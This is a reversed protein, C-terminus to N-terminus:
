CSDTPHGRRKSYLRSGKGTGSCESTPSLSLHSCLNVCFLSIHVSLLLVPFYPSPLPSFHFTHPFISFLLSLYTSPSLSPPALTCPFSTLSPFPLVHVNTSFWCHAARKPESWSHYIMESTYMYVCWTCPFVPLLLLTLISSLYRAPPFNCGLPFFFFQCHM